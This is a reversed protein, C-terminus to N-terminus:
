VRVCIWKKESEKRHANIKSLTKQAAQIQAKTDPMLKSFNETMIAEFIAKTGRERQKGEAIGNHMHSM